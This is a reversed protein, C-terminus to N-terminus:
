SQFLDKLSYVLVTTLREHAVVQGLVMAVGEVAVEALAVALGDHVSGSSPIQDFWLCSNIRLTSVRNLKIPIPSITM